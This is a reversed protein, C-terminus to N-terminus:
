PAGFCRRRRPGQHLLSSCARSGAASGCWWAPSFARWSPAGPSKLWPVSSALFGGYNESGWVTVLVGLVVGVLVPLMLGQVPYQWDDVFSKGPYAVYTVSSICTGLISLGVAWGPLRRGAVFCYETDRTRRSLWVGLGVVIAFYVGLICLDFVGLHM